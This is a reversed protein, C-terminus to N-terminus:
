RRSAEWPMSLIASMLDGNQITPPEPVVLANAQGNAPKDNPAMYRPSIAITTSTSTAKGGDKPSYTLLLKYKGPGAEAIEEFTPIYNTWSRLFQPEQTRNNEKVIEFQSVRHSSDDAAYEAVVDLSSPVADSQQDRRHGGKDLAGSM